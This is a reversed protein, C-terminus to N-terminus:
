GITRPPLSASPHWRMSAPSGRARSLEEPLIDALNELAKELLCRRVRTGADPAPDPGSALTIAGLRRELRAEVREGTWRLVSRREIRDALWQEVEATTSRCRPPSGRARRRGKRTASRWGNPPPWRRHPMSCTVAGAPLSGPKARLMAAARSITPCRWRSSSGSRRAGARRLSLALPIQEFGCRELKADRGGPEGAQPEGRRPGLSRRGVAGAAARLDDGRGGLGREQLLLALRAAARRSGHEAGASCCRRRGRSGDAARRDAARPRHHPGRWRARGFGGAAWAGREAGAAPPPDLWPLSAPDAVGWQALALVLPALDSTLMEPPDFPARGPMRPKRGCAIPSARARAARSARRAACGGGPERSPHRPADRRRCPRVRRPAVPRCRGGGFRRRAHDLNRRDGDGARDQAPRASRAPDGRAPRRARGPRSAAARSRPCASPLRERVREIEGVGPLFALM